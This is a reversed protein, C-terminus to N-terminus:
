WNNSHYVMDSGCPNVNGHNRSKRRSEKSLPECPTTLQRTRSATEDGGSSGIFM